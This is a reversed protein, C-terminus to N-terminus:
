ISFPDPRSTFINDLIHLERRQLTELFHGPRPMRNFASYGRELFDQMESWGARRAPGRALRLTMGVLPLRTGLEVKRGVEGVLRIQYAREDYNDCIRYAEAYQEATIEDTVELDDVLVELLAQDLMNTLNNPPITQRVLSLLFDPLFHHMLEYLSEIDQDRQSFDRAAYIDSLFFRCAPGYERSQMLDAHTVALRNSQFQRLLRLPADLGQESSLPSGSQRQRLNAVFRATEKFRNLEQSASM